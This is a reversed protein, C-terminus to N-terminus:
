NESVPRKAAQPPQGEAHAAQGASARDPKRGTATPRRQRAPLPIAFAAAISKAWSDPRYDPRPVVAPFTGLDPGALDDYIGGEPDTWGLLRLFEVHEAAARAVSFDPSCGRDIAGNWPQHALHCLGSSRCARRRCSAPLGRATAAARLAVEFLQPGFATRYESADNDDDAPM